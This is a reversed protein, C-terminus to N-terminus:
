AAGAQRARMAKLEAFRQRLSMHPRATAPSVATEPNSAFPSVAGGAAAATTAAAKAAITMTATAAAAQQETPQAGQAASLHVPEASAKSAHLRQAPSSPVEDAPQSSNPLSQTMSLSPGQQSLLRELLSAKRPSAATLSAPQDGSQGHGSVTPAAATRCLAMLVVEELDDDDELIM